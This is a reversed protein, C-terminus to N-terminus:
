GFLHECDLDEFGQPLVIWGVDPLFDFNHSLEVMGVDDLADIYEFVLVILLPQIRSDKLKATLSVQMLVHVILNLLFVFDRLCNSLSVNVLNQMRQSMQVFVVDGMSVQFQGVNKDVVVVIDLQSIKPKRFFVTLDVHKHRHASCRQGHRRFDQAPLTVRFFTICPRKTDNTVVQQTRTIRKRASARIVQQIVDNLLPPRLKGFFVLNALLCLLEKLKAQCYIIFLSWANLLKLAALPEIVHSLALDSNVVHFM